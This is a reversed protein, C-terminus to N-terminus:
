AKSIKKITNEATKLRVQLEAVLKLGHEYMKVAEDIDVNDSEFWQLLQDLEAQLESTTKEINKAKPM